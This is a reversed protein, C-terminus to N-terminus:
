KGVEGGKGKVKDIKRSGQHSGHEVEQRLLKIEGWPTKFKSGTKKLVSERLTKEVWEDEGEYTIVRTVKM